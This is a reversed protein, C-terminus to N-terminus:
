GSSLTSAAATATKKKSTALALELKAKNREERELRKREIEAEKEARKREKEERKAIVDPRSNYREKSKALEDERHIIYYRRKPNMTSTEGADAAASGSPDM